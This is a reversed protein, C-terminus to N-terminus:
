FKVKDPNQQIYELSKNFFKLMSDNLMHKWYTDENRVTCLWAMAYATVQEPLYGTRQTQWGEGTFTKFTSHKFRTNGLFIGFGCAVAVLDTIYEDNKQVKFEELLIYHSLEHAITAILMEPNKLLSTEISIIIEGDKQQYTGAASNWKGTQDAPSSLISGDAMLVPEDSFYRLKVDLTELAFYIKTQELVFVADAETGTIDYDYFEKTPLITTADNFYDGFDSKIAILAEEVWQKDEPTVPLKSKKNWFM